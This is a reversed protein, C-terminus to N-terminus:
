AISDGNLGRPASRAKLEELSLSTLLRPKAGPLRADWRCVGAYECYKCASFTNTKAPSIAINGKRMSSALKEATSKAHNLLGHMEELSAASAHASLSGDKNFVQRMSTGDKDMADVVSVDSLVIGRLRLRQAIEREAQEKLGEDLDVLPDDIHFYFAGAPEAGPKASLAAMLYLLLQLQLGWYIQTPDMERHGSKYDVVRLYVSEGGDFLDVRDIVGRLLVETGDAMQLRIPPLPSDPTGFGVEAMKPRFSSSKMHQTFMWAARHIIRLYKKGLAKTQANEGLPGEVWAQEIPSLVDNMLSDCEARDIDPWSAHQATKEMFDKLAGHFITGVDATTLAWEKRPAPQLGYHVFHKYPCKAYEELRSVSMTQHGFLKLATSPNLPRADLKESLAKLISLAQQKTEPNAYLSAWADMWPDPLAETLSAGDWLSSLRLALGDLAPIPALPEKPGSPGTVGGMEVLQPFLRTKLLTLFGAPRQSQGNQTAQAHSLFLKESPLTLTRKLDTRALHDRGDGNLGLHTDALTELQEREEDRLLSGSESQMLGDGLGMVFMARISGPMVHGIEGCVVTDPAPPLASLEGASFGAALWAAVQTSPARFGTLLDHMQDLTGLLFQWVQRTQSAQAAMNLHLLREEEKQLTHYADVQELLHFIARLSETAEKAKSLAAQMEELPGILARRAPELQSAEEQNGRTFPKRWRDGYIGNALAYNELKNCDEQSVPAYGSKLCALIDAKAYGKSAARLAHTLFRILGHSAAPVKEELYFPIGYSSFVSHLISGYAQMSGAAVAMEGWPVGNEHLRIMQSAAEHAEAYPNPAAFLSIAEPKGPYAYAPHAFLNAELHAIEKAAELPMEDLYEWVCLTNQAGLMKEFRQASQGAPLYLYGDRAQPRDMILAVTMGACLQAGACLLQCLQPPLIDFGYAFVHANEFLRSQPLRRAAEDQVDEGDVFRGSLQTEYAQWCRAIDSLKQRLAGDPLVAAQALLNDATLRGRKFDAILSSMKEVLGIHAAARRYYVLEKQVQNVARSLAMRKGRSDLPVRGDTGAADFIRQTLRSPSLVQINFFGPMDLRRIIEVEAQLTYQEPVLLLCTEGKQHFWGIQTIIHPLLRHMRGGLITVEGM